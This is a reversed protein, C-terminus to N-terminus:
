STSRARRVSNPTTLLRQEMSRAPRPSTCFPIPILNCTATSAAFTLRVGTDSVWASVSFNAARSGSEQMRAIEQLQASLDNDVEGSQHKLEKEWDGWMGGTRRETEEEESVGAQRVSRRSVDRRRVERQALKAALSQNGVADLWQKEQTRQQPQGDLEQPVLRIGKEERSQKLKEQAKKRAQWEAHRKKIRPRLEEM